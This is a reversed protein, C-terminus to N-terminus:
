KKTLKQVLDKLLVDRHINYVYRMFHRTNSPTWTDDYQPIPSHLLTDDMFEGDM